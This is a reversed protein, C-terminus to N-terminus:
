RWVAKMMRLSMTYFNDKVRIAPFQDKIDGNNPCLWTILAENRELQVIMSKCNPNRDFPWAVGSKVVHHTEMDVIKMASPPTPHNVSRCDM